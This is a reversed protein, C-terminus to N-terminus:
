PMALNRQTLPMKNKENQCAIPIDKRTATPAILRPSAEDMGSVFLRSVNCDAHVSISLMHGQRQDVGQDAKFHRDKGNGM